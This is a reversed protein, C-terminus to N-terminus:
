DDIAGQLDPDKYVIPKQLIEPIAPIFPTLENGNEDFTAPVEAVPAQYEVAPHLVTNAYEKIKSYGIAFRHQNLENETIPFNFSKQYGLSQANKFTSNLYLALQYRVTMTKKDFSDNVIRWYEGSVGSALVKTKLLAM